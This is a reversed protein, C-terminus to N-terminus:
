HQVVIMRSLITGQEGKITVIYNGSPLSSVNINDSYQAHAGASFAQCLRGNMDTIAGSFAQPEAWSLSIHLDSTAPVPFVSLETQTSSINETGTTSAPTYTEYYYNYRYQVSAYATGDWLLRTETTKQNYSNYTRVYQEYPKYTGSAANWQETTSLTNNGAADYAMTIKMSPGWTSSSSNWLNSLYSAVTGDTNYTYVLQYTTQLVGPTSLTSQQGTMTQVKTGTADYAYIHKTYDMWHISADWEQLLETLPKGSANYTNVYHWYNILSSGGYDWNRYVQDTIQGATNVTYIDVVNDRYASSAPIWLLNSDRVCYGASNLTYYTLGGNISYSSAVTDWNQYQMFTLKGSSNYTYDSKRAPKLGAGSNQRLYMQNYLNTTTSPYVYTQSDRPVLSGANLLYYSYAILRSGTATTKGAVNGACLAMMAIAIAINTYFQKM